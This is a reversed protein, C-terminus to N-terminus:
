HGPCTCWKSNDWGTCNHEAKMTAKSTVGATYGYKSCWDSNGCYMPHWYVACWTQGEMNGCNCSTTYTYDDSRYNDPAYHGTATDHCTYGFFNDYYNCINAEWGAYLTVTVDGNRLSNIVGMATALAEITAYPTDQHLKTAATASNVHWYKTASKGSKTLYFSGGSPYYNWLGYTGDFNDTLKYTYTGLTQNSLTSGNNTNAGNANLIITLEPIKNIVLKGTAYTINYNDTVDTSGSKIQANSPTIKGNTTVETTSATLTIRSFTHGSIVSATAYSTGTSISSGYNITQDKATITIPKKAITCDKSATIHNADGTCTVTQTGAASRTNNSLTGGTCTALTQSNGNYTLSNCSLSVTAKGIVIKMTADKEVLSVTDKVNIVVNYTDAPTTNTFSITRNASNITAGSPAGSKITYTYNGTGNTAATFANSTYATGYTGPNLTQANFTLPNPTFQAYLQNTGSTNTLNTLVWYGSANTWNSVSAVLSKDANIVKTGGSDATFWGQFTFGNRSATPISTTSTSDRATLVTNTGYKSYLPTSGNLTGGNTTAIFDIRPSVLALHISSPSNVESTNFGTAVAKVKCGYYRSGTFETKSITLTKTTSYSGVWVISGSNYNAESTAYGFQYSVTTDNSYSTTTGCTLTINNQNYVKEGSSSASISVNEPNKIEYSPDLNLKQFLIGASARNIKGDEDVITIAGHNYGLFKYGTKPPPTVQTIVNTCAANSYYNDKYKLYIKSPTAGSLNVEYIGTGFVAKCTMNRTVRAIIFDGSVPDYEAGCDNDIYMFGSKPFAKFRVESGRVAFKPLSTYTGSNETIYGYREDTILKVEYMAEFTWPNNYTGLGRVTVNDDNSVVEVDRAKYTSNKSVSQTDGKYNVIYYNNSGDKTSTWYEVGDYLYSIGNSSKSIEFDNKSIFHSEGISSNIYRGHTTKFNGKKIYSTARDYSDTYNLYDYAFVYIPMMMILLVLIKKIRKM